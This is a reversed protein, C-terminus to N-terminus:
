QLNIGIICTFIKNEIYLLGKKHQVHHINNQFLINQKLSITVLYIRYMQLQFLYIKRDICYNIDTDVHTQIIYM